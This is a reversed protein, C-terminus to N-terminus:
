FSVNVDRCITLLIKPKSHTLFEFTQLTNPYCSHNVVSVRPFLAVGIDDTTGDFMTFCNMMVKGVIRKGWDARHLMAFFNNTMHEDFQCKNLTLRFWAFSADFLDSYREKSLKDTEDYNSVLKNVENWWTGKKERLDEASGNAVYEMCLYYFIRAVIIVSTPIVRNMINDQNMCRALNREIKGLEDNEECQNSCYIYIDATRVQKTVQNFDIECFCNACRTSRYAHSLVTISLNSLAHSSAISFDQLDIRKGRQVDRLAVVGRGRENSIYRCEFYSGVESDNNKDSMTSEKRIAIARKRCYDKHKPYDQIQCQRNHYMVSQCRSCKMMKEDPKAHLLCGNCIRKDM